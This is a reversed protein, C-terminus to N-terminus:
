NLFTGNTSCDFAYVAGKEPDFELVVHTRSVLSDDITLDNSADKGISFQTSASHVRGSLVKEKAPLSIGIPSLRIMVSTAASPKLLFRVKDDNFGWKCHTVVRRLIRQCNGM